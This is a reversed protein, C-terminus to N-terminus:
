EKKAKQMPNQKKEQEQKFLSFRSPLVRPPWYNNSRDVDATELNPDLNIAVVEKDFFFVKTVENQNMKWIEAPIHEKQTSQDKFTFELIIPMYLGGQSEFTIEYFNKTDKLLAKEKESLEELYEKYEKQDLSTVKLPDYGNYFDKTAPDREVVTEKRTPENRLDGVFDEEQKELEKQFPKEIVPNKTDITLLKVDSIGLDVHDTTFFWGRWFWDLDVASADEMFRFFDAPTPHKFKWTHAYNKFAYDFLERGMITERLINLATAPKGYANNGFQFISESNTMIPSMKSKDGKM